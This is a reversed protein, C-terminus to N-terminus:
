VTQNTRSIKKSIKNKTLLAFDSRIAADTLQFVQWPHELRPEKSFDDDGKNISEIIRPSPIIEAPISKDGQLKQVSPKQGSLCEWKERLTLIGIRIDLVSRTLTFPYLSDAPLTENLVIPKM